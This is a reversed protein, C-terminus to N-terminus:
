TVRSFRQKDKASISACDQINFYKKSYEDVNQFIQSLKSYELENSVRDNSISLNRGQGATRSCFTEMTCVPYIPFAEYFRPSPISYSAFIETVTIM